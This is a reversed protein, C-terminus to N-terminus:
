CEMNDDVAVSAKQEQFLGSRGQPGSLKRDLQYQLTLTAPDHPQYNVELSTLFLHFEVEIRGYAEVSLVPGYRRSYRWICKFEKLVRVFATHQYGQVLCSDM